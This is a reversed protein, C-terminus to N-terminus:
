KLPNERIAQQYIEEQYRMDGLTTRLNWLYAKEVMDTYRKKDKSLEILYQSLQETSPFERVDVFIDPPILDRVNCAGYYVLITKSKFVNFVRETIYNHSWFPDAMPEAAYCFLYENIKKLNNYNSHRYGLDGQYSAVKGFPNPGFTHLLLYPETNLESMVKHKMYNADLPHGWNYFTQLSCIGKIKEDYGKFTELWHYSEWNAPCQTNYVKIDPYTEKFKISYTIVADYNAKIWNIDYNKPLTVIGEQALLVNKGGGRKHPKGAWTQCNFAMTPYKAMIYDCERKVRQDLHFINRGVIM